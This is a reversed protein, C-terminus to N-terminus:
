EQDRRADVWVHITTDQNVVDNGDSQIAADVIELHWRTDLVQRLYSLIRSFTGHQVGDVSKISITIPVEGVNKIQAPVTDHMVYTLTLGNNRAEDSQEALWAALAAYDSFISSEASSIKELLSRLEDSSYHETLEEFERQLSARETVLLYNEDLSDIRVTLSFIISAVAVTCIAGYAVWGKWSSEIQDVLWDVLRRIRPSMNPPPPEPRPAQRREPQDSPILELEEAIM